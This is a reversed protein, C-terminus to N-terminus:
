PQRQRVLEFVMVGTAVSVNLSSVTGQMPIRILADCTERTLRRLGDGEAGMVLAVPGTLDTQYVTQKAEGAAGYLWVGMDKLQKMTRALNTVQIFPVHEVAGCAVKAVVPTIGVAKDKPAIIMTIGAADASRFCAGLNHPDQVGDLILIAPPSDSAEILTKIDAESYARMKQCFVAVGQHNGNDSLKDLESREVFQVGVHQKKAEALLQETQRDRRGNQVYFQIIREPQKGLIAAVAHQGFIYQKNGSM